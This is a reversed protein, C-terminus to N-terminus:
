LNKKIVIYFIFLIELKKQFRFELILHLTQIKFFLNKLLLKYRYDGKKIAM